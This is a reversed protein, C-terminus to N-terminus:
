WNCAERLPKIENELGSITFTVTEPGKNTQFRLRLKDHGFFSKIIPIHTSRVSPLFLLGGSKAKFKNAKLDDIRYDVDWSGDKLIYPAIISFGTTNKVCSIFMKVRSGIEAIEESELFLEHTSEETFEDTTKKYGWKSTGQAMAGGAFMVAM